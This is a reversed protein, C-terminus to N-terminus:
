CYDTGQVPSQNSYKAKVQNRKYESRRGNGATDYVAYDTNSCQHPYDPHKDIAWYAVFTLIVIFKMDDAGDLPTKKHWSNLCTTCLTMNTISYRNRFSCSLSDDGMHHFGWARFCKGCMIFTKIGPTYQM